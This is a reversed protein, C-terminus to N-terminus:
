VREGGLQCGNRQATRREESLARMWPPILPGPLCIRFLFSPMDRIDEPGFCQGPGIRLCQAHWAPGITRFQFSPFTASGVFDCVAGVSVRAEYLSAGEALKLRMVM